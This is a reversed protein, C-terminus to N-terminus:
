HLQSQHPGERPWSIYRPRCFILGAMSRLFDRERYVQGISRYNKLLRILPDQFMNNEPEWVFINGSPRDRAAEFEAHLAGHFVQTRPTDLFATAARWVGELVGVAMFFNKLEALKCLYALESYRVFLGLRPIAEQASCRRLHVEMEPSTVNEAIINQFNQLRQSRPEFDPQASDYKMEGAEWRRGVARFLAWGSARLVWKRGLRRACGQCIPIFIRSPVFSM